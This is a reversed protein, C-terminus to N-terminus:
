EEGGQENNVESFVADYSKRLVVLFDPLENEKYVMRDSFTYVPGHIGNTTFQAGNLKVLYPSSEYEGFMMKGDVRVAFQGFRYGEKGIYEFNM